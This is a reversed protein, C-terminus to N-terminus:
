PVTRVVLPLFMLSGTGEYAGIDYGDGQPRPRGQLDVTLWPLATGVDLALSGLM